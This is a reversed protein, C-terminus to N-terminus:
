KARKFEVGDSWKLYSGDAKIHFQGNQPQKFFQVQGDHRIEGQAYGSYSGVFLSDATPQLHTIKLSNTSKIDLGGQNAKQLMEDM